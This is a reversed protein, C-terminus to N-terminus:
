RYVGNHGLSFRGPHPVYSLGHAGSGVPIRKVLRGTRTSIVLVGADFRSSAWLRHGSPSLQLMDPSGGVQWTTRVRRRRLDIVSISGALRNSVYLSRADRSVALGHAGTGTPLFAVEKMRRPDIVSVGGRGQNAVYFRRGDPSLKVDVPLGGVRAVGAVRMRRLDVKAVVGSFECSAVAYRGDASFDLHDVGLWPVRISRQLRWSHPDRVDLRQLREAVVIAKSGDPTFYLNYPDEVPVTKAPKARRPDIVTLSNGVTNTVYLRKMDWSPTVHHPMAGVVFRDVVRLRRPDIVDLTGADSNPVYVREPLDSVTREVRSTTVASYVNPPTLRPAPRSARSKRPTAGAGPKEANGPQGYPLALLAVALAAALGTVLAGVRRRNRSRRVRALGNM